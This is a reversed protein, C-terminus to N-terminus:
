LVVGSGIQPIIKVNYDNRANLLVSENSIFLTDATAVDATVFAQLMNVIDGDASKDEGYRKHYLIGIKTMVIVEYPQEPIPDLDVVFDQIKRTYFGLREKPNLCSFMHQYINKREVGSRSKTYSDVTYSWGLERQLYRLIGPGCGYDLVRTATSPISQHVNWQQQLSGVLYYPHGYQLWNHNTNQSVGPSYFPNARYRAIMDDIIPKTEFM